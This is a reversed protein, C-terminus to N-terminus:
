ILEIYNGPIIVKMYNKFNEEKYTHIVFCFFFCLLDDNFYKIHNYIKTHFFISKLKKIKM